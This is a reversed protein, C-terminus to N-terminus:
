FFQGPLGKGVSKAIKERLFGGFRTKKAIFRLLLRILAQHHLRVYGGMEFTPSGSFCVKFDFSRDFGPSPDPSPPLGRGPQALSLTLAATPDFLTLFFRGPFRNKLDAFGFFM